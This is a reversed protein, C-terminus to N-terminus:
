CFGNVGLKEMASMQFQTMTKTSIIIMYSCKKKTQIFLCVTFKIFKTIDHRHKKFVQATKLKALWRMSICLNTEKELHKESQRQKKSYSLPFKLFNYM